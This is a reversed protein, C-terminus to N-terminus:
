LGKMDSIGKDDKLLLRYYIEAAKKVVRQQPEM